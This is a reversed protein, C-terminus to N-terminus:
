NKESSLHDISERSAFSRQIGKKEIEEPGQGRSLQHEEM